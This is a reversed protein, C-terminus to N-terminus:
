RLAELLERVWPEGPRVRDARELLERAKVEDGRALAVRGLNAVAIAAYDPYAAMDAATKLWAEAQDLDGAALAASGGFVFGEPRQPFRERLRANATLVQQQQGSMGLAQRASTISKVTALPHHLEAIARAGGADVDGAAVLQQAHMASAERLTLAHELLPSSGDDNLTQELEAVARDPANAWLHHYARQVADYGAIVPDRREEDPRMALFTNINDVLPSDYLYRGLTLEIWPDDDTHRRAGEVYRKLTEPGAVRSAALEAATAIRSTRMDEAVEPTWRAALLAASGDRTRGAVGGGILVVQERNLWAEADPFADVFSATIGRVEEPGQGYIPLWLSVAGGPALRDRCHMFHERTYLSAAGAVSPHIPDTTIVDWGPGAQAMVVRGDEIVISAKNVVDRNFDHFLATAAPVVRNLEAVTVDGWVTLAGATMGSGLGVVLSRGIPRDMLLAPLHGLVMQNRLDAWWTSAETRGGVYFSRHEAAAGVLVSAEPGDAHYLITRAHEASDGSHAITASFTPPPSPAMAIAVVSIVALGAVAGGRETGRQFLVAGLVIAASAAFLSLARAAGNIGLLSLLVPGTLGAGFLAGITNAVYVRGVPRAAATSSGASARVALPLVAGLMLTPPLVVGIASLAVTRLAVSAALGGEARASALTLHGLEVVPLTYAALTAGLTLGLACAIDAKDALQRSAGVLWSGIAIGALVVALVVGFALVTAGGLSAILRTWLVQYGLSTAGSAFAALWVARTFWRVDNDDSSARATVKQEAPAQGADAPQARLARWAIGAALLSGLPASLAAGSVGLAPVLLLPATLAGGVAGLTNAAYLWGTGRLLEGDGGGTGVWARVVLPLTAGMATTPLLLLLTALGMRGAWRALPGAGVLLGGLGPSLHTLIMSVVVTGGAIVLELAIYGQLARRPSLRDGRRGAWGAGLALGGMYAVLVATLAQTSGGLAHVLLRQWLVEVALAAFGSCLLALPLV